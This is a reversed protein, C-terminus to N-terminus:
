RLSHMNITRKDIKRKITAKLKCYAEIFRDRCLTIRIM